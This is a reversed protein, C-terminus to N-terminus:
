WNYHISLYMNRGMANIGSAFTRYNKNFINEIGAYLRFNGLQQSARINWTHWAPIGNKPAYQENDEGNLYYNAIPKAANWNTSVEIKRTIWTYAVSIKGYMPPIHDLSTPTTDTKIKGITYHLGANIEWNTAITATTAIDFGYIFAKQQNKNTFVQSKVGDYLLSDQENYTGKTLVIKDYLHTYFVGADLKFNQCSYHTAVDTTISKEPRLNTTPVIIRGPSSEFIKSIDDINPVRYATAINALINWQATLRYVSGVNGSYTTNEQKIYTYPFKFFLTDSHSSTLETGGIRGGINWTYKKSSDVHNYYVYADISRMANAKNPYRTDLPKQIEAIISQKYATSKLTQTTADIGYQLRGKPLQTIMDVTIQLTKVKEIRNNRFISNLKRNHRSEGFLQTALQAKLSTQNNIKQETHLQLLGRKAAGYYWETQQLIGNSADTLRDYRPNNTTTSYQLNLGYKQQSSPQYIIKQLADYQKYGSFKQVLSDTNTVLSDKGNIREIYSNRAGFFAQNKFTNKGMKVDGFDSYTFCTISGWRTSSAGIDFHAKKGKNASAYRLSTNGHIVLKDSYTTIRPQLTQVYIAGGMADSGYMTSAAGQLIEIQQVSSEDVGVINQLHGSRFILNNMRVGDVILLIKNAELGRIVPSGGSQQSKQIALHGSNQLVDAMTAAELFRIEQMPIITIADSIETKKELYKHASIVVEKTFTSDTQAIATTTLILFLPLIKM